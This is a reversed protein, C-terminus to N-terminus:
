DRCTEPDLTYLEQARGVGRLAYRGVCVLGSREPEPTAAAFGASVVVAREVSRCMSAIRTVENVAPGVVTFDLREDSGINGYFVDGVHLGLYVSTVPRGEEARRSNLAAVRARLSREAELACRCAAAPDEAKFIALVGDGVLKLVDGGAGHVASIVAEAYDNLLPIVEEPPVADAITTFGRLDSFWLVAGIRETEGRAIRGGLVMRGPDRGLYVEALTGAIRALSACKVALALPGALRRLGAMEAEGFGAPEQTSWASYVCDMEGISGGDGFRHIMAVYDTIGEDRLDAMAPFRLPDGRAIRCRYEDETGTLLHHFPSRRWTEAAEGETTRGYAHTTSEGTAAHRWRFARGEHIPHLTDVIVIARALPLGADRCRACFGHLLATEDAGALGQRVLWDAIGDIDGDRMDRRRRRRCWLASRARASGAVSSRALFGAAGPAAIPGEGGLRVGQVPVAIRIGMEEFRKKLRRNLERQVPRRGQDRCPIRGLVAVGTVAGFPVVHVSGDGVRIRISLKEVTGSLGAVTVWDCRRRPAAKRSPFRGSLLPRGPDGGSGGM